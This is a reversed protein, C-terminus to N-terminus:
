IKRFTSPRDNYKIFDSIHIEWESWNGMCKKEEEEEKEKMKVRKPKNFSTHTHSPMAARKVPKTHHFNDIIILMVRIGNLVYYYFNTKTKRKCSHLEFLIYFLCMIVNNHNGM